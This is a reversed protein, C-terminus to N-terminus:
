SSLLTNSGCSTARVLHSSEKQIIGILFPRRARISRIAQRRPIKSSACVRPPPEASIFRTHEPLYKKVLITYNGKPITTGAPATYGNGRESVNGVRAVEAGNYRLSLYEGPYLSIRTEGDGMFDGEVRPMDGLWLRDIDYKYMSESEYVYYDTRSVDSDGNQVFKFSYVGAPLSEGIKYQGAGLVIKEGGPRSAIEDALDSSIELLEELSYGSFDITGVAMATTFGALLVLISLVLAMMKKM